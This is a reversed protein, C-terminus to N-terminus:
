NSQKKAPGEEDKDAYMEDSWRDQYLEQAAETSLAGSWDFFELLKRTGTAVLRAESDRPFGTTVVAGYVTRGHLRRDDDDADRARRATALPAHGLRKGLREPVDGDDPLVRVPELLAWVSCGALRAILLGLAGVVRLECLLNLFRRRRRCCRTRPEYDRFSVLQQMVGRDPRQEPRNVQEFDASVLADAAERSWSVRKTVRVWDIGALHFTDYPRGEQSM